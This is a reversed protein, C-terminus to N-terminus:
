KKELHEIVASWYDFTFYFVMEHQWEKASLSLCMRAAILACSENNVKKALRSFAGYHDVTSTHKDFMEIMAEAQLAPDPNFTKNM